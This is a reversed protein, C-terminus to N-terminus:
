LKSKKIDTRSLADSKRKNSQGVSKKRKDANKKKDKNQERRRRMEIRKQNKEAIWKEKEGPQWPYDQCKKGASCKCVFKRQFVRQFLIRFECFIQIECFRKPLLM